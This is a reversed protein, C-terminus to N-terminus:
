MSKRPALAIKSRRKAKRGPFCLAVKLGRPALEVIRDRWDLAYHSRSREALDAM